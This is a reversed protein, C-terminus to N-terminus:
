LCARDEHICPLSHEIEEDKLNRETKEKGKRHDAQREEVEVEGDAM